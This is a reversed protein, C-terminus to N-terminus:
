QRLNANMAEEGALLSRRPSTVIGFTESDYLMPLVM